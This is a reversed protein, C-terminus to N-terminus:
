LENPQTQQTNGSATLYLASCFPLIPIVIGGIMDTLTSDRYRGVIGSETGLRIITRTRSEIFDNNGTFGIGSEWDCFFTHLVMALLLLTFIVIAKQRPNM